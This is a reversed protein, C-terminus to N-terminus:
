SNKKKLEFDSEEYNNINVKPAEKIPVTKIEPEVTEKKEVESELPMSEETALEVPAGNATELAKDLEEKRKLNKLYIRIVYVLFSAPVIPLIILIIGLAYYEEFLNNVVLIQITAISYGLLLCFLLSCFVTGLTSYVYDVVYNYYYSDKKHKYFVTFLFYAILIVVIPIVVYYWIQVPMWFFKVM